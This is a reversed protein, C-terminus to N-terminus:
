EKVLVLDVVWCGRVHPDPSRCHALIEESDCGADQLADALIPMASFDRNDYMGQALVRATDTRWSPSFTIPHFPNGFIDRVLGSQGFREHRWTASLQYDSTDDNRIDDPLLVQAASRAALCGQPVSYEDKTSVDPVYAAARVARLAYREASGARRSQEPRLQRQLRM